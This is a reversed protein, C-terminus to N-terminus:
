LGCAAWQSRAVAFKDGHYEDAMVKDILVLAKEYTPKYKDSQFSVNM